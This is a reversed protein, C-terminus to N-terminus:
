EPTAHERGSTPCPHRVLTPPPIKREAAWTFESRTAISRSRDPRPLVDDYDGGRYGSHLTAWGYSDTRGAPSAHESFSLTSKRHGWRRQLSFRSRRNSSPM